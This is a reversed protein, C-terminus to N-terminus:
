MQNYEAEADATGTTNFEVKSPESPFPEFDTDKCDWNEWIWRRWKLINDPSTDKEAIALNVAGNMSSAIKISLEKSEQSQRINNQKTEMLKAGFGGRNAGFNGTTSSKPPYLSINRYEGNQKVVLEGEVTDAEKLGAFNPFSDWIAVDQEVTASGHEDLLEAKIMNKGTSTTKRELKGIVYKSM